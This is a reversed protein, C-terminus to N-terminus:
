SLPGLPCGGSQAPSGSSQSVRKAFLQEPFLFALPAPTFHLQTVMPFVPSKISSVTFGFFLPLKLGQVLFHALATNVKPSKELM